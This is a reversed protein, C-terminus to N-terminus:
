RLLISSRWSGRWLTIWEVIAVPSHRRLVLGEIMGTSCYSCSLPCGRRTQVPMLLGDRQSPLSWLDADPLPLMDLDKIFTRQCQLGHGPLYLGALESLAAGQEMRGLLAPFVVEGEGQIGMDAGLYSLTSEPFISYGAGGLVITAESMSRCTVVVEKVPDLLFKTNEMNQDDINRVSIGIMEPCFGAIAEKLVSRTDEEMKLDVMAVDHEARRTAAAVCALGLPLTPMNIKETGVSVFLVKM